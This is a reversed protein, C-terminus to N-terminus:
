FHACRDIVFGLALSTLLVCAAFAITRRRGLFRALMALSTVCVGTSTLSFAVATGLTVGHEVLPRLLLVETGHCLYLPVGVLVLLVGGLTGALGGVPLHGGALWREPQLLDLGISLGGGILLYPLLGRFVAFTELGADDQALGCDGACLPEAAAPAFLGGQPRSHAAGLRAVLPVVHAVIMVLAFAAAIRLAGYTAGLLAFSLVVIHPSLLPASLVFALVTREDRKGRLAYLLPVAACSCLPLVAGYAFAILPNSPFLRPFRQVWRALLIAVYTGVLAILGVEVIHEFVLFGVGPLARYLFCQDRNVYSIHTITRYIADVALVGAAGLLAARALSRLRPAMLAPHADM